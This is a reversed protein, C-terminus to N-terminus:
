CKVSCDLIQSVACVQSSIASPISLPRPSDNRKRVANVDRRGPVM